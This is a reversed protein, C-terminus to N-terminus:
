PAARRLPGFDFSAQAVQEPSLGVGQSECWHLWMGRLAYEFTRVFGPGDCLGSALLKQRLAGHLAAVRDLSSALEVAKAVYEDETRAIFEPIGMQTLLSAGVRSAHTQGSLTVVPVGMLVSDLTTTTGHYPFTDLAVDIKRYMGLHEAQSAIFGVLEVRERDIGRREFEGLQFERTAPDSGAISKMLMRSGPVARLIQCWLDLIQQSVKFERNFSGFTVYGNAIGPPPGIAPLTEPPRFCLFGGPLRVLKETHWAEAGPPDSIWDTIRYDVAEIGTTDPYGLYTVQVPAPKYGLMVAHFSGAHGALDILIDVQDAKIAQALKDHQLHTISRYQDFKGRLRQTVADPAKVGSYAYVEFRERDRYDLLPELFYAISHNRIDASVYGIRLRRDPNPPNAFVKNAIVPPTHKRGFRQHEAFIEAPEIASVYHMTLLLNSHAVSANPELEMVKRFSNLSDDVLGLSLQCNAITNWLVLSRPDLTLGDRAVQLARSFQTFDMYLQALDAYTPAHGPNLQQMRLLCREADVGLAARHYFRAMLQLLELDDPFRGDVERYAAVAEDQRGSDQLARALLDRLHHATPQTALASRLYPLAEVPKDLALWCRAVNANVQADGPRIAIAALASQLAETPRRVDLLLNALNNHAEWVGPFLSVVTRYATVARERLGAKEAWEADKLARNATELAADTSAQDGTEGTM